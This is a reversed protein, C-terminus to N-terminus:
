PNWTANRAIEEDVLEFHLNNFNYLEASVDPFSHGDTKLALEISRRMEEELTVLIESKLDQLKKLMVNKATEFMTNKSELVHKTLAGRMMQLTGDGSCKAAEKYGDEMIEETTKVLSNYIEKKGNRIMESLKTKLKEEETKLFTLQLKVKNYNKKLKEIDLSFKTIVGNFAGCKGGNPFTKRFVEDISDTLFSTLRMNLNAPDGTKPRSIGKNKVVSKLTKHFGRGDRGSAEPNLFSKLDEECTAISEQVGKSLCQDFARHTREMEESIAALHSTLNSELHECVEKNYEIANRSRAGEILSLIGYAGNVYNTTKTKSHSDNLDQLFKQLKPIETIEKEPFNFNLFEKSSVTFVEFCDEDFHKKVNTQQSYANKVGEKAKENREKIQTQKEEASHYEFDEYMDSKTCIFHITKCQGGNGINSVVGKLIDWAEKESVARTIETVIWVTSCSEVIGKWMTDRGKNCDGTGPLDVLTVHQLFDNHENYPVRVTVCKVLPWFLRGGNDVSQPDNRAYRKIKDSLEKATEGDLRKKESKFFEPIEKLCKSNKFNRLSKEKQHNLYLAKWEKGYLASLKDNTDQDDEKDQGLFQLMSWLDYNWDEESIFEIEAEYKNIENAEVKIMVSTCANIGGAPLLNKEGIVANILSSKGAGTRGFVGVMERKEIQLDVIKKKLFENLETEDRHELKTHTGEMIQEVDSLIKKEKLSTSAPVCHRKASPQVTCSERQSDLRKKGHKDESVTSSPRSVESQHPTEEHQKLIKLKKKFRSRTGVKPILSDIDCEELCYFSEENVDHARFIDILESLGWETLKDRVFDDM